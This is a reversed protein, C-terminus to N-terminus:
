GGAVKPLITPKRAGGGLELTVNLCNEEPPSVFVAFVEGGIDGDNTVCFYAEHIPFESNRWALSDYGDADEVITWNTAIPDCEAAEDRAVAALLVNPVGPKAGIIGLQTPNGDNSAYSVLTGNSIAYVTDETDFPDEITVGSSSLYGLANDLNDESLVSIVFLSPDASLLVQARHLYSKTDWVKM